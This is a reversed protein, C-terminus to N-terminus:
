RDPYLFCSYLNSNESSSNRIKKLLRTKKVRMNVTTEDLLIARTTADFGVIVYSLFRFDSEKFEPFDKRLKSMIDDLDKNIRDEFEKQKEQGHSLEKIIKDTREKYNLLASSGPSTETGRYDFMRGIEAFQSRYTSAFQIRLNKLKVETAGLNSRAENLEERALALMTESEDMIRNLREVEEALLRQRYHYSLIVFALLALIIFITLVAVSRSKKRKQIELESALRYHEAQAKFVSQSLQKHVLSDALREYDREYKLAEKYDEGDESLRSRWVAVHLNDGLDDLQRFIADSRKERGCKYLAYAYECWYEVTMDVDNDIGIEFLGVIEDYDPDRQKIKFDAWQPFAVYFTRESSVLVRMLSDAKSEMRNNHYATALASLARNIFLSDGSDKMLEYAENLCALEEESNFCSNYSYGLHSLAMAQWYPSQASKHAKQFNLIANPYDGNDFHVRGAYFLAAAYYDGKGHKKYFSLAPAIVGPDTMMQDNKDVAMSNLLSYLAQERRSKLSSSPISQLEVLASDPRNQIYSEIDKMRDMQRDHCSCLILLILISLIQRFHKMVVPFYM